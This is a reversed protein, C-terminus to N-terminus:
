ILLVNKRKEVLLLEGFIRIWITFNGNKFFRYLAVKLQKYLLYHILRLQEPNIPFILKPNPQKDNQYKEDHGYNHMTQLYSINHDL